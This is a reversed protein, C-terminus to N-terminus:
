LNIITNQGLPNTKNYSSLLVQYLNPKIKTSSKTKYVMSMKQTPKNEVSFMFIIM